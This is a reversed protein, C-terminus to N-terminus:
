PWGVALPTDADVIREGGFIFRLSQRNLGQRECFADMVKSLKTIPKIRFWMEGQQQDVFKISMFTPQADPAADNAAPPNPPRSPSSGKFPPPSSVERDM